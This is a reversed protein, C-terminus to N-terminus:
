GFRSRLDGTIGNEFNRRVFGMLKSGRSESAVLSMLYIHWEVASIILSSNM